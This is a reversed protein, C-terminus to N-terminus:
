AGGSPRHRTLGQDASAVNEPFYQNVINKIKKYYEPDTAYGAEHLSRIFQDANNSHELARQYRPQQLFEKYDNFSDEISDYRRFSAKETQPIGNVFEVTPVVVSKGQWHSGSKINFLNFSHNGYQDRISHKGWGTELATQAVLYRYDTGINEAVKKAHPSILTIFDNVSKLSNMARADKIRQPITHTDPYPNNFTTKFGQESKQSSQPDVFQQSLQRYLVDALGLGKGQSLSASLQDDFMQQRFKMEPTNLPNDQAFVENASRMSKLLMQTFMAEFQKAVAKLAAGKDEKGQLRIDNLQNLDTYVQQSDLLQSNPSVLNM